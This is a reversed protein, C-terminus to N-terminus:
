ETDAAAKKVPPRNPRHPASGYFTIHTVPHKNREAWYESEEAPSMIREDPDYGPPALDDAYGSERWRKEAETLPHDVWYVTPNDHAPVKVM